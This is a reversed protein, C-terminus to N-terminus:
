TIELSSDENPSSSKLFLPLDYLLSAYTCCLPIFNKIM